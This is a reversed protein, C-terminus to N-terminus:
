LYRSQLELENATEIVLDAYMERLSEKTLQDGPATLSIAGLTGCEPDRVSASIADVGEVREQVSIAFGQQRVTEIEEFLEDRDVVTNETRRPLGTQDVIQDIEEDPLEALMAKGSANQHLYFTQGLPNDDTIGYKDNSLHTFVGRNGERVAFTTLKDTENAIREVHLSATRCIPDSDRVFGGLTLFKLSLRYATGDRVVYDHQELTKLHKHTSSKAMGIDDALETVGALHLQKLREVIAFLTEDAGVTGQDTTDSAM